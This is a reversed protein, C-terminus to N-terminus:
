AVEIVEYTDQECAHGEAMEIAADETAFRTASEIDACHGAFPVSLGTYLYSTTWADWGTGREIYMLARVLPSHGEGPATLNGREIETAMSRLDSMIEDDTETYKVVYAM